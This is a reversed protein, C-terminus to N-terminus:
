QYCQSCSNYEEKPRRRCEIDRQLDLEEKVSAYYMM